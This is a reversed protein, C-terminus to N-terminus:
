THTVMWKWVPKYIIKKEDVKEEKEYDMNLIVAEKVKLEEMAEVLGKVERDHTNKNNLDYCVQFLLIKKHKGRVLFDVERNNLTKYYYIEEYRRKLELFVANELYTGKNKSFSFAIANIIGNDACYIKKQSLYQTKLSYSFKNLTYLLLTNELYNVYNKITNESKLRVVNKLNNYSYENGVNSLLYFSLERLAKVDSIEYRSVIDRYLIDEYIKKLIEDEKYKLYEPMGGARMYSDFYKKIKGREETIYFSEEQITINNFKLFEVFSFSFLNSTINRGTLRTGLEKSVMSANSGTVFFKFKNDYMRRVFLEWKDINQIEDFFFVEKQGFVEVFVEYLMDFDKVTFDLLREDEFSIYYVDRKYYKDAIQSLLTSKGSRRIGSIVIVHPIKIYKEFAHLNEREIGLDKYFKNKNQSIVIEKLLERHM